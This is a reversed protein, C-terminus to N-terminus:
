SIEVYNILRQSLLKRLCGELDRTDIDDFKELLNDFNGRSQLAELIKHELLSITYLFQNTTKDFVVFKDQKPLPIFGFQPNSIFLCNVLPTTKSKFLFEMKRILTREDHRIKNEVFKRIAVSDEKARNLLSFEYNLLNRPITEFHAGGIRGSFKSEMFASINSSDVVGGFGQNGVVLVPKELLLAKALLIGEGIVVKSNKLAKDFEEQKIITVHPNFLDINDDCYIAINKEYNSNIFWLISYLTELHNIIFIIDFEYDSNKDYQQKPYFINLSQISNSQVRIINNGAYDFRIDYNKDIVHLQNFIKECNVFYVVVEKGTTTFRFSPKNIVLIFDYEEASSKPKQFNFNLKRGKTSIDIDYNEKTLFRNLNLLFEIDINDNLYATLLVKRNM